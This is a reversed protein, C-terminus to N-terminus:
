PRTDIIKRSHLDGESGGDECREKGMGSDSMSDCTDLEGSEMVM